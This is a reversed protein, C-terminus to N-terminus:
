PTIISCSLDGKFLVQIFKTITFDDSNLSFGDNVTDGAIDKVSEVFGGKSENCGM